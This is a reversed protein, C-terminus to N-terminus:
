CLYTELDETLTQEDKIFLKLKKTRAEVQPGSRFLYYRMSDRLSKKERVGYRESVEKIRAGNNSLDTLISCANDVFIHSVLSTPKFIISAFNRQSKYSPNAGSVLIDEIKDLLLNMDRLQEPSKRQLVKKESKNANLADWFTTKLDKESIKLRELTRIFLKMDGKIDLIGVIPRDVLRQAAPTDHQKRSRLDDDVVLDPM